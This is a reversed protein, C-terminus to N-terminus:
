PLKGMEALESAVGELNLEKLKEEPILGSEKDWGRLKYYEQLMEELEVVEGKNPGKPAPTKTLRDPLLDDKKSIGGRIDYARELNFIREGIKRLDSESYNIGILATLAEAFDQFYLAPPWITGFKCVTVSDLIACFHEGDRVMLPKYKPNLRDAAEPLVEEGFRNVIEENFGVESLVEFATLHDAGRNATAHALGMSKQARGDQAPIDQGKVIMAYQQAEEGLSKALRETGEALKDGFGERNIIKEILEIMVEEDGWELELGDTEEKTIIGKEYCEMAFGIVGGCSITDLGNNNCLENAYLLAEINSNGVRSGLASLTEYEVKGSSKYKGETVRTFNECHLPCAYCARDKEKYESAIVEGGIDDAHEFVGAQFNKTPFRGIENMLEVLITTGYKMTDKSFPHNIIRKRADTALEKFKEPKAPEVKKDGKVVIAKLNKSGMVAGLGSRAAARYDGTMISSFRVLNEGAPGICAVKRKDTGHKESLEEATKKVPEGWLSEAELIEVKGNDLSLYVPTKSKGEIII